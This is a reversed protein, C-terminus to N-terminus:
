TFLNYGNRYARYANTAGTMEGVVATTASSVFLLAVPSSRAEPVVLLMLGGVVAVSVGFITAEKALLAVRGPLTSSSSMLVVPPSSQM